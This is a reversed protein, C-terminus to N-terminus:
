ACMEEGSEDAYSEKTLGCGPCTNGIPGDAEYGCKPCNFWEENGFLAKNLAGYSSAFINGSKSTIPCSGSSSELQVNKYAFRLESLTPKSKFSSINGEKRWKKLQVAHKELTYFADLKEETTGYKVLRMFGEIAPELDAIVGDFWEKEDAGGNVEFKKRIERELLEKTTGSVVLPNRLFDEASNANLSQGTLADHELNFSLLSPNEVRIASMAIEKKIGEIENTIGNQMQISRIVQGVYIFAYKGFGDQPRGPLSGWWISDGVNAKAIGDALNAMGEDDAEERSSDEGRVRKEWIARKTKSRMSEGTVPDGIRIGSNDEIFELSYDFRGLGLRYEGIYSVIDGRLAKENVSRSYEVSFGGSVVVERPKQQSFEIASTLREGM